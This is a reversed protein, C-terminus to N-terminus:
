LLADKAFSLNGSRGGGNPIEIVDLLFLLQEKDKDTFKTTMNTNRYSVDNTVETLEVKYTSIFDNLLQEDGEDELLYKCIENSRVFYDISIKGKLARRKCVFQEGVLDNLNVDKSNLYEINKQSEANSLRKKTVRVWKTTLNPLDIILKTKKEKEQSDYWQYIIFERDWLFDKTFSKILYKRETEFVNVVKGM